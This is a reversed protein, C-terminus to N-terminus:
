CIYATNWCELSYTSWRNDFVPLCFHISIFILYCAIILQASYLLMPQTDNRGANEVVL